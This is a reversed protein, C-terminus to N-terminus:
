TERSVKAAASARFNVMRLESQSYQSPTYIVQFSGPARAFCNPEGLTAGSASKSGGQLSQTATPRVAGGGPVGEDGASEVPPPPPRSTDPLATSTYYYDPLLRKKSFGLDSDIDVMGDMLDNVRVTLRPCKDLVRLLPDSGAYLFGDSPSIYLGDYKSTLTQRYTASSSGAGTLAKVIDPGEAAAAGQNATSM